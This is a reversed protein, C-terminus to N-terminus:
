STQVSTCLAEQLEAVRKYALNLFFNHSRRKIPDDPLLSEYDQLQIGVGLFAKQLQTPQIDFRTQSALDILLAIREEDPFDVIEHVLSAMHSEQLATEFGTEGMSDPSEKAAEAAYHEALTGILKERLRKRFVPDVVAFPATANLHEVLRDLDPSNGFDDPESDELSLIPELRSNPIEAADQGDVLEPVRAPPIGGVQADGSYPDRHLPTFQQDDHIVEEQTLQQLDAGEPIQEPLKGIAEPIWNKALHELLRTRLERRFTPDVAAFPATVDLHAALAALEPNNRIANADPDRHSLSLEQGRNVEKIVNQEETRKQKKMIQKCALQVKYEHTSREIPDNSLPQRYDQLRIEAELFAEQMMSSRGNSLTRSALEILLATRLKKPIAAIKHALSVLLSERFAKDLVIESPDVQQFIIAYDQSSPMQLRSRVFQCDRRRMDQYCKYAIVISLHRLPSCPVVGEENVLATYGFTRMLAEQVIDAIIDEEQGRWLSVHSSCVWYRVRAVLLHYLADWITDSRLDCRELPFSNLSKSM